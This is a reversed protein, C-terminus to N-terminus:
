NSKTMILNKYHHEFLQKKESESLRDFNAQHYCCFAKCKISNFRLPLSTEYELLKQEKRLLNFSGMDSIVSCGNRKKSDARKAVMEIRSLIHPNSEFYGKVSDLIVLSEDEEYRNVDLGNQTLTHRVSNVNEYTPLLVIVEKGNELQGKSYRSYIDRLVTLHPYVLLNHEGYDALNMERLTSDPGANVVLQVM